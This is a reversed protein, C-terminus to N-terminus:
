SKLQCENTKKANENRLKCRKKKSLKPQQETHLCSTRELIMILSLLMSIPLKWVNKLSNNNHLQDM